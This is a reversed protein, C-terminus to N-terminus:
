LYNNVKLELETAAGCFNYIEAHPNEYLQVKRAGFHLFFPQFEFKNRKIDFLYLLRSIM